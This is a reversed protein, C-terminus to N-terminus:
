KMIIGHGTTGDPVYATLWSRAPREPVAMPSDMAIGVDKGM